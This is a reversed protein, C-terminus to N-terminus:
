AALLGLGKLATVVGGVTYASAGSAGAYVSDSKAATGSGAVFGTVDASAAPQVIPTSNYFALKQTTATGIKTGTTANLVINKADTITMHGTLAVTGTAAVSTATLAACSLAGSNVISSCTLATCTFAGSLTQGTQAVSLFPGMFSGSELVIDAQGSAIATVRMRVNCCHEARVIWCRATNDSPSITGTVLLGTGIEGAVLPFYNTGDISGEFVHTVTGYTGSIQVAVSTEHIPKSLTVSGTATLSGTTAVSM